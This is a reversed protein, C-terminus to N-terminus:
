DKIYNFEKNFESLTAMIELFGSAALQRLGEKDGKAVLEEGGKLYAIMVDNVRSYFREYDIKSM